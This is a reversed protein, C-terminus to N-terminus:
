QSAKWWQAIAGNNPVPPKPNMRRKLARASTPLPASEIKKVEVTRVGIHKKAVADSKAIRGRQEATEAQHASSLVWILNAERHEGREALAKIHHLEKKDGPNIKAGSLGCIGDQRRWIRLGVREPVAEDPTKGIWEPVARGGHGPDIMPRKTM